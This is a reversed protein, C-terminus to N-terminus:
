NTSRVSNKTNRIPWGENEALAEPGDVEHGVPGAVGDAAHQGRVREGAIGHEALLDAEHDAPLQGGDVAGAYRLAVERPQDGVRHQAAEHELGVVQVLDRHAVVLQGADHAGDPAEQAGLALAQVKRVVQQLQRLVQPRRRTLKLRVSSVPSCQRKELLM